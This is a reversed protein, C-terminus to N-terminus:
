DRRASLLLRALEAFGEGRAATTVYAPPVPLRHLHDSVNAVGVSLPFFSFAAADNGSDGVFVWRERQAALDLGLADRAAGVAGTAKDWSGPVAHAHVSSVSARAGEEEIFRVLQDIREVRVARTEGVDFALDCRRARHDGTVPIDPFREAAGERIRELLERSAERARPGEAYGERVRDGDRWAWGAGNEGIAGRVPWMRAFLDAWGLPRGTACLLAIGADALACIAAYARPDLVGGATVTDDIDFLVGAISEARAALEGLAEPRRRGAADQRPEAV